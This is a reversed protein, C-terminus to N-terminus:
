LDIQNTTVTLEGPWHQLQAGTNCDGFVGEGECLFEVWDLPDGWGTRLWLDYIELGPMKDAMYRCHTAVRQPWDVGPQALSPRPNLSWTELNPLSLRQYGEVEVLM